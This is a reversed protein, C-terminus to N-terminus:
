APPLPEPVGLLRLRAVGGDPFINLRVCGIAEHPRLETSFAHESDPSLPSPPLIERWEAHGNAFSSTSCGELSCAGPANGKFFSTDVVARRIRGPAGLQVIAWDHGPGRRRKTEWGDFMGRPPGPYILHHRHGFFMDSADVVRGGHEVAALDIEGGAALRSWDPVAEGLVRLRAVGGDPFIRLVLHTAPPSDAVAFSNQNDGTLEIRPLLTRFGLAGLEADFPPDADLAAAEIVCAEPFNGRFYRTDVVVGHVRGPLGLRLLCWDHGPVRRRRTEWGDMWKGRDTYVGEKWVPESELILSEKPAFFDDNAALVVGGLREGALDIWEGFDSM